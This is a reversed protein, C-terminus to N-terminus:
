KLYREFDTKDKEFHEKAAAYGERWGDNYSTGHKDRIEFDEIIYFTLLYPLSLLKLCTHFISWIAKLIKRKPSPKLGNLMYTLRHAAVGIGLFASFYFLKM